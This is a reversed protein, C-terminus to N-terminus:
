ESVGAQTGAMRRALSELAEVPSAGKGALASGFWDAFLDEARRIIGDPIDSFRLEAAFTALTQTPHDTTMIIHEWAGGQRIYAACDHWGPPPKWPLGVKRMPPGCSSVRATRSGGDM